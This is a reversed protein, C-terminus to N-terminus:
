DHNLETAIAQVEELSLRSYKVIKEIPEGDTLMDRAMDHNREATVQETVQKTVRETIREEAEEFEEAYYERLTMYSDEWVKNQRAQAIRAEIDRTLDSSPAHGCLYDLFARMEDSMENEKSLANIFVKSTGDGLEISPDDICVERFEYKHRGRDFPDFDSCIFIIYSDPLKGYSMGAKLYDVDVIGQYFRSRRPLERKHGRQMELDFITDDEDDLRVDLKVSKQQPSLSIEHHTDKYKIEKVKVGLLLEVLRKCLDSDSSLIKCFMFDDAFTLEQYTKTYM